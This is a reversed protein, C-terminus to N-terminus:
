IHAKERVVEIIKDVEKKNILVKFSKLNNDNFFFRVIKFEDHKPSDTIGIDKIKEYGYIHSRKSIGVGDSTFAWDFNNLTELYIPLLGVIAGFSGGFAEKFGVLWVLVLMFVIYVILFLTKAIIKVKLKLDSKFLIEHTECIKKFKMNRYISYPIVVITIIFIISNIVMLTDQM